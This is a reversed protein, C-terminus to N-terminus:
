FKGDPDEDTPLIGQAANVLDMDADDLQQFPFSTVKSTSASNFLRARLREKLDTNKSFDTNYFMNEINKM